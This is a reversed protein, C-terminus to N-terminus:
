VLTLGAWTRAPEAQLLRNEVQVPQGVLAALRLADLDAIPLKGTYPAPVGLACYATELPGSPAPLSAAAESALAAHRRDGTAAALERLARARAFAAFGSGPHVALWELASRLARRFSGVHPTHGSRVFALVAAATQEVDGGWSGDLQVTRGMLRLFQERSAPLPEQASETLEPEEEFPMNASVDGAPRSAPRQFSDMVSKKLSALKAMGPVGSMSASAPAPSPPMAMSRMFQVGPMAAQPAFAEMELGAPLPQSVQIHKVKKGIVAPTKDVASFATYPTVLRHELALSIVASRIKDTKRGDLAAEELLDDVRARAWARAIAPDSPGTQPLAVQAEFHQGGRQGSVVLVAPMQGEIKMRGCVQLPQGIYLDPLRQPYVDWAKAEQWSLSIDTLAPFSVRDQFRIIADEIDEGAQLFEAAGRGIRAMSALLARNVSPGIGFTFVRASGLKSRLAELASAEASVAGDTLFVVFRTRSPDATLGLSADLASIIETGGRADAQALYADARDVTSQSVAAPEMQYWELQDDFLLIRFTDEAGLARLCARLANRAQLIPEGSMSGSRDLVFIFERRVALPESEQRPPLIAAIFYAGDAAPSIWGAARPLEGAVAYRLVFDHDPIPEDITRVQFRREDLRTIEVLHSPSTPDACAVGADVAVQIEITGVKEGQRAVPAHVGDAEDKHGPRDYKPTIGMPFVFEFGDDSFLLKQQYRIEAQITEGPLINTLRLGFLNPRKQELLGARKGSERAQEFAERAQKLEQLDGRVIRSAIRITFDTVAADEPLPFLYELEAPENLPNGFRQSVLVSAIAGSVQATVATHELPLPSQIDGVLVIRGIRIDEVSFPKSM